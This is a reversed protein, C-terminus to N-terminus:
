VFDVEVWEVPVGAGAHERFSLQLEGASLLIRRRNIRGDFLHEVVEAAVGSKRRLRFVGDGYPVLGLKSSRDLGDVSKSAVVLSATTSVLNEFRCVGKRGDLRYERLAALVVQGNEIRVWSSAHAGTHPALYDADLPLVTATIEQRVLRTLGNYKAIAEPTPGSNQEDGAFSQMSGLTGCAVSDFWIDPASLWDYGNSGYTPVGLECMVSSFFFRRNFEVWYEGATVYPDDPSHQDIYDVFLPSLNYYMLVIDPNEERLASVVIEVARLLLREGAFRMDKPAGLEIPPMEYGFDFKILDPKYRRMFRRATERIKSQVVPQTLDLIYHDGNMNAVIPKGDPGHIVHSLDLGLAAPNQCRIFAAWLGIMHGDSRVRDLFAEFHPLRETSHEMQGYHGEWKDDIEFLGARMGSGKYDQYIRSLAAEDLKDSYKHLAMQEGWTSFQPAMMVAQKRESCQKRRVVGARMLAQYYARIAERFNPGATLVLTTGLILLGPTRMHKWVDGAYKVILSQNNGESQIYVDGAPLDALGCCYADSLHERLAGPHAVEASRHFGCFYHVPLGWQQFLGPAPDSCRGLWSTLKLNLEGPVIPSLGSSMSIGPIVSHTQELAPVPVGAKSTAFYHLSVVDQQETSDYEVADIWIARPDFRWVVKLHGTGNVGAYELVLRRESADVSKIHGPSCIRKGPQTVPEVLLLPQAPGTTMQRGDSDRLVFRDTGRMWEFRYTTAEVHVTNGAQRVVAPPDGGSETAQRMPSPSPEFAISGPNARSKILETALAVGTCAQVFERRKM